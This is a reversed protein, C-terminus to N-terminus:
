KLVNEVIGTYIIEDDLNSLIIGFPRNILLTASIEKRGGGTSTPSSITINSKAVSAGEIGRENMKLVSEHKDESIYYGDDKLLNTLDAKNEDFVSKIGFSNELLSKIDVLDSDLEFSPFSCRTYYVYEDDYKDYLYGNVNNILEENFIDRINLNENPLIFCIKYKNTTAYFHSYNTEKAIKGLIYKTNNFGIYDYSNDKYFYGSSKILEGEGWVDKLYTTNILSINTNNSFKFDRNILGATHNKIFLKITENALNINNFNIYYANCYYQNALTKATSEEIPLRNQIWMSNYTYEKSLSDNNGFNHKSYFHSYNKIILEEDMDLAKLIEDKTNNKSIVAMLVLNSFISYPSVISNNKLFASSIKSSFNNYKTIFEEYSDDEYNVYKTSIENLLKANNTYGGDEFVDIKSNYLTGFIIGFSIMFIFAISAFLKSKSFLRKIFLKSNRQNNSIIRYESNNDINIRDKIDSYNLKLSNSKKIYDNIIDNNKM